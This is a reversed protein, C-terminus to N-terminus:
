ERNPPSAWVIAFGIGAAVTSAIIGEVWAVADAPVTLGTFHGVWAVAIGAVAGAIGKSIKTIAM